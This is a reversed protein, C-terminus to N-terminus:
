VSADAHADEQVGANGVLGDGMGAFETRGGLRTYVMFHVYRANAREPDETFRRAVDDNLSWWQGNLAKVVCWYHGSTPTPGRHYVVAALEFAGIGPLDIEREPVVVHRSMHLASGRHSLRRSQVIFTNPTTVVRRQM